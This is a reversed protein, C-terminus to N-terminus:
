RAFAIRQCVISQIEMLRIRSFEDMGRISIFSRVSIRLGDM